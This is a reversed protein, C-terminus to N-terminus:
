QPCTFRNDCPRRRATRYKMPLRQMRLLLQREADDEALSTVVSRLREAVATAARPQNLFKAKGASGVAGHGTEERCSAGESRHGPAGISSHLGAGAPRRFFRSLWLVLLGSM